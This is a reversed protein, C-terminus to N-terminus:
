AAKRLDYLSIIDDAPFSSQQSVRAELQLRNSLEMRQLAAERYLLFTAPDFRPNNRGGKGYLTVYSCSPIAGCAIKEQLRSDVLLAPITDHCFQDQSVNPDFFTDILHNRHEASLQYEDALIALNQVAYRDSSQMSYAVLRCLADIMEVSLSNASRIAAQNRHKEIERVLKVLLPRIVKGRVRCSWYVRVGSHKWWGCMVDPDYIGEEESIATDILKTVIGCLTYPEDTTTARLTMETFRDYNYQQQPLILTDSDLTAQAKQAAAVSSEADTLEAVMAALPGGFRNKIKNLSQDYGAVPRSGDEVVDHLIAITAVSPELAAGFIQEAVAAIRLSHGIMTGASKRRGKELYQMMELAALHITELSNFNDSANFLEVLPLNNHVDQVAKGRRGVLRRKKSSDDLVDAVAMMLTQELPEVLAGYDVGDLQLAAMTRQYHEYLYPREPFAGDCNIGLKCLEAKRAAPLNSLVEDGAARAVLRLQSAEIAAIVNAYCRPLKLGDCQRLEYSEQFQASAATLGDIHKCVGNGFLRELVTRDVVRRADPLIASYRDICGPTDRIMAAIVLDHDIAASGRRGNGYKQVGILMAGLLLEAAISPELKPLCNSSIVKRSARLQKLLPDFPLREANDDFDPMLADCVIQRGRVTRLMGESLKALEIFQESESKLWQRSVAGALTRQDDRTAVLLNYARLLNRIDPSCGYVSDTM